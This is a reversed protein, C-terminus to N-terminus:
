DLDIDHIPPTVPDDKRRKLAEEFIRELLESKHKEEETSQRFLAERRAAAQQLVEGAHELDPTRDPQKPPSEHSLIKGLPRDILLRAGCCPCIVEFQRNSPEGMNTEVRLSRRPPGRWEM